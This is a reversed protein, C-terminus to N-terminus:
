AAVAIVDPDVMFNPAESGTAKEVLGIIVRGAVVNDLDSKDGDIVERGMFTSPLRNKFVVAVPVDTTVAKAVFPLYDKAGSYSFILKYNDPTKGLRHVNKTYDYFFVNPFEQPIGHKEWAVDSLVNLRVAPKVGKKICNKEHLRIEKRLQTLFAERDDHYWQTKRKRAENIKPFVRAMGSFVLCTEGCEARKRYACLIDDPFMSLGAVLYEAGSNTKALKTNAGSRDLLKM